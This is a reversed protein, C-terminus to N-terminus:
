IGRAYRAGPASTSLGPPGCASRSLWHWNWTAGCAQRCRAPFPAGPLMDGMAVAFLPVTFLAALLFRRQMDRLEPNDAEELTPAELELAMGSLPCRGPHDQRIEPHMPCLFISGAPVAATESPQSPDLFRQPDAAFRTLCRASCFHYTEGAYTHQHRGDLEVAMGCVPDITTGSDPHTSMCANDGPIQTSTKSSVCDRGRRFEAPNCRGGRATVM